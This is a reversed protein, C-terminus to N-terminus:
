HQKLDLHLDASGSIPMVMYLNFQAGLACRNVALSLGCGRCETEKERIEQEHIAWISSMDKHSGPYSGQLLLGPASPAVGVRVGVLHDLETTPPAALALTGAAPGGVGGPLAGPGALPLEYAALMVADVGDFGNRTLWLELNFSSGGTPSM